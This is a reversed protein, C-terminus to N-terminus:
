GTYTWRIATFPPKESELKARLVASSSESDQVTIDVTYQEDEDWIQAGVFSVGARCLCHPVSISITFGLLEAMAVYHPASIGPDAIYAALLASKRDDIAGLSPLDYTLEWNSLSEETCSWVHMEVEKRELDAKCRDLEEAIADLEFSSKLPCLQTLALSHPSNSIM